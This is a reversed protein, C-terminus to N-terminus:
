VARETDAHSMWFSELARHPYIHPVEQARTVFGQGIQGSDGPCFLQPGCASMYGQNTAAEIWAAYISPAPTPTRSPTVPVPTKTPTVSCGYANMLTARPPDPVNALFVFNYTQLGAPPVGPGIYGFLTRHQLADPDTYFYQWQPLAVADDPRKYLGQTGVCGQPCQDILAYQAGNAGYIMQTHASCGNPIIHGAMGPNAFVWSLDCTRRYWGQDTCQARPTPLPTQPFAFAAFGCLVLAWSVVWPWLPTRKM